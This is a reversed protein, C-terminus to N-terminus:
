AEKGEVKTTRKGTRISETIQSIQVPTLHDKLPGIPLQMLTFALGVQIEELMYMAKKKDKLSTSLGKMGLSMWWNESQFELKQDPAFHKDVYEQIAKEREAYKKLLPSLQQQMEQIDPIVEGLHELMTAVVETHSEVKEVTADKTKHIIKVAM